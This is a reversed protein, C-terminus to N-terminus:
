GAGFSYEGAAIYGIYNSFSNDNSGAFASFGCQAGLPIQCSRFFGNLLLLAIDHCLFDFIGSAPHLYVLTLGHRQALVALNVVKTTIFTFTLELGAPILRGLMALVVCVLVGSVSHMCAVSLMPGVRAVSSV